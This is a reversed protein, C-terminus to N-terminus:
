ALLFGSDKRTKRSPRKLIERSTEASLFGEANAPFLLCSAISFFSISQHARTLRQPEGPFLFFVSHNSHLSSPILGGTGTQSSIHLTPTLARKEGMKENKQEAVTGRKLEPPAASTVKLCSCRSGDASTIFPYVQDM